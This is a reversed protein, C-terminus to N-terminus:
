GVYCAGNAYLYTGAGEAKEDLWQGEYIDGDNHFLKGQGNAKDDKWM